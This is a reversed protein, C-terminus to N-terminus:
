SIPFFLSNSGSHGKPCYNLNPYQSINCGEDCYNLTIGLKHKSAIKLWQIKPPDPDLRIKEFEEVSKQSKDLMHMSLRLSNNLVTKFKPQIQLLGSIATAGSGYSGFYLTEYSKGYNEVVYM